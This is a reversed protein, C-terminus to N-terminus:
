IIGNHGMHFLLLGLPILGAAAAKMDNKKTVDDQKNVQTALVIGVIISVIGLFYLLTTVPSALALKKVDGYYQRLDDKAGM